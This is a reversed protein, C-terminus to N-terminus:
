ESSPRLFIRAPAADAGRVILPVGQVEVRQSELHQINTLNEAILIDNELLIRHVIPDPKDGRRPYAVDPTPIDVGIYKAKKEVVWEAAAPDLSPHDFYKEQEFHQEWGTSILVIDGSEIAPGSDRLDDITIFEGAKRHRVRFLVAPGSFQDEGIQDISKGSDIVHNPADFHTGAHLPMTMRTSNLHHGAKKSVYLDLSVPPMVPLVPMNHWISYGVDIWPTKM